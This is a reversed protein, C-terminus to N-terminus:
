EWVRRSRGGGSAGCLPGTSPAQNVKLQCPLAEGRWPLGPKLTLLFFARDLSDYYMLTDGLSRPCPWCIHPVLMDQRWGVGRKTSEGAQQPLGCIGVLSASSPDLTSLSHQIRKRTRGRCVPVQKPDKQEAGRTLLYILASSLAPVLLVWGSFCPPSKFRLLPLSSNSASLLAAVLHFSLSPSPQTWAPPLRPVSVFSSLRTWSGASGWVRPWTMPSQGAM